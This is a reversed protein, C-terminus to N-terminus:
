SPFLRLCEEQFIVALRRLSALEGEQGPKATAGPMITIEATPNAFSEIFALTGDPSLDRVQSCVVAFGVLNKTFGARLYARAIEPEVDQEKLHLVNAQGGGGGCAALFVLLSFGFLARRIM